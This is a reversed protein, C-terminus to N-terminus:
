RYVYEYRWTNYVNGLANHSKKVIPDNRDNYEYDFSITNGRKTYKIEHGFQNYITEGILFEMEYEQLKSLYDNEYFWKYEVVKKIEFYSSLNILKGEDNYTRIERGHPVKEGESYSDIIARNSNKYEKELISGDEFSDDVILRTKFLSDGPNYFYNEEETRGGSYEKRASKLRGNKYTFTQVAKDKYNGTTKDLSNIIHKASVIRDDEYVFIEKEYHDRYTNKFTHTRETIKNGDYRFTRILTFIEGTKREEILYGDNNFKYETVEREVSDTVRVQLVDKSFGLSANTVIEEQEQGLATTITLLLIAIIKNM